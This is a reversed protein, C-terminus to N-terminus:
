IHILSLCQATMRDIFKQASAGMDVKREFNWPLIAGDEKRVFWSHESGACLPGVYYPIRFAFLMRIKKEPTLGEEDPVTLFPLYVAAKKLIQELEMRHLQCPIVSNEGSALRPMLTQKEAKERLAAVEPADGIQDLEKKIFSCFAAHTCRSLNIKKGQEWVQRKYVDLHTYSVSRVSSARCLGSSM